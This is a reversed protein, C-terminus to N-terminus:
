FEYFQESSVHPSANSYAVEVGMSVWMKEVGGELGVSNVHKNNWKRHM